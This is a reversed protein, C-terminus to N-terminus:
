GESNFNVPAVRLRRVEEQLAEIAAKQMEITRAMMQASQREGRVLEAWAEPTTCENPDAQM